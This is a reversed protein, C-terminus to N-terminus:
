LVVVKYRDAHCNINVAVPLATIHAPGQNIHVALATVRGGLGQPGIGLKNVEELLEEELKAYFPDPNRAGLKRLHAKKSLLAAGEFTGGIGVGVVIPPCPNAGAKKVTEIVFKKAGEIGESPKLMKLASMNESGGGKPLIQLQFKDGAVLDLYIVAPTNDGTNKRKIPDAVISKRLYGETYGQRVGENIAEILDGGTVHVEQGLTIFIVATGTDQCTPQMNKKALRNNELIQQLIEKGQPSEEATLAKELAAAVGEGIICNAEICMKKVTAIIQEIKIERM